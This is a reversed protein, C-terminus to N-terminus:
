NSMPIGNGDSLSGTMGPQVADAIRSVCVDVIRDDLCLTSALYFRRSPHATAARNVSPIVNVTLVKGPFHLYPAVVIRECGAEILRQAANEITLDPSREAQAPEVPAGGLRDQLLSCLARLRTGDDYRARSGRNVLIVGLRGGEGRVPLRGGVPTIQGLGRLADDVRDAVVDILRPDVGLNAAQQIQLDPFRPRLDALLAPIEVKIEKGDFLFYPMVIANSISADRLAQLAEELTPHLFEFFAVRVIVEGALRKSLRAGIERIGEDTCRGRASGHALLVVGIQGVHVAGSTASPRRPSSSADRENRASWGRAGPTLRDSNEGSM